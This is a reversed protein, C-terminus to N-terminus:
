IMDETVRVKGTVVSSILSQRYEELLDIKHKLKSITEEFSIWYGSVHKVIKIQEELPPVPIWYQDLDEMRLSPQLISPLLDRRINFDYMLFYNIFSSSISGYLLLTCNLSFEKPTCHSMKLMFFNLFSLSIRTSFSKIM